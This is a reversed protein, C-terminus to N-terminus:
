EASADINVKGILSTPDEQAAMFDLMGIPADKAMLDLSLMSAEGSVFAGIAASVNQAEAVGALLGLVTGQALQAFVPRMTAGDSGQEAAVMELIIDSLGADTVDVSIDSVGLGMAAAMAQNPDTAFLAETANALTGAVVVSALDAGSISMENIAITSSAEDWSMDVAFGADISTIGLALLQQVQENDPNAELDILINSASTAAQAPIGNRYDGLTIDFAGISAVVREGPADGDPVDIDLGNLALGEWAPILSRANETFWAEDVIDPVSQLTAITGSLDMQKFTFSDLTVFGDGEVTVEFGDMSISPYIGPSMAGMEIGGISFSLPQGDPDEGVCSMGDFMAPASEFSSLMDAYIRLFRSMNQPSVDDGEEEMQEALAMFETIPYAMPRARFEATTMAGIECSMQEATITGGVFEFDTYITELETQGGGDVLGYMGLMGAISFDSASMGGFSADGDEGMDIDFSGASVSAAVGDVVNELLVDNITAVIEVADDDDTTTATLTITPISISDATLGALAEANDVIEGGIIARLTAEDVNSGVSDIAPVDVSFSSSMQGTQEAAPAGGSKDKQLKQAFAPIAPLAVSIMCAAALAGLRRSAVNFIM